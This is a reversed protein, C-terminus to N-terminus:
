LQEEIVKVVELAFTLEINPDNTRDLVNCQRSTIIRQYKEYQRNFFDISINKCNTDNNNNCCLYQMTIDKSATLYFLADVPYRPEIAAIIECEESTINGGEYEMSTFVDAGIYGREILLLHLINDNTNISKILEDYEECLNATIYMQKEFISTDGTLLNVTKTDDIPYNIWKAVNEPLVHIKVPRDAIKQPFVVSSLLTSKGVGISGDVVITFINKM